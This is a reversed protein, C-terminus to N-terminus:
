TNTSNLKLVEAIIQEVPENEVTLDFCIGTALLKSVVEELKNREVRLELLPFTNTTVLPKIADPITFPKQCVVRVRKHTGYTSVLEHLSGQYISTGEHILFFKQSLKEVDRMDHSSLVITPKFEKQYATFFDLMASHVVIDLGLTPEDLFIISPNHLLASVLELRMRQGLSLTKVPQYILKHADLFDLLTATSRRYAEDDLEYIEKNLRFTDIAPLDWILQNKRGMVFSIQRLFAHKKEFPVYGRVKVSGNTPYLIGSMIKMTTTKGAGNPGVLGVVEGKQVTFSLKSLAVHEVYHKRIIDMFSTGKKEVVRYVKTLNQVIIDAKM